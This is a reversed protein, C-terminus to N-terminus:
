IKAVIKRFNKKGRRFVKGDKLDEATFVAKFDIIKENDISVGGQEIARRAESKSAVLGAKVLISGIDITGNVFDAATLETMPIEADAGAGFLAKAEDSLQFDTKSAHTSDISCRVIVTCDFGFELIADQFLMFLFGEKRSM